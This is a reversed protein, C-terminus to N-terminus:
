PAGSGPAGGTDLIICPDASWNHSWVTFLFSNTVPKIAATVCKCRETEEKRIKSFSIFIEPRAKHPFATFM